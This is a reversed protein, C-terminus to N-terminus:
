LDTESEWEATMEDFLRNILYDYTERRAVKIKWIVWWLCGSIQGYMLIVSREWDKLSINRYLEQWLKCGHRYHVGNTVFWYATGASLLWSVSRCVDGQLKCHIKSVAQSGTFTQFCSVWPSNKQPMASTKGLNMFRGSSLESKRTISVTRRMLNRYVQWARRFLPIRTFLHRGWWIWPSTFHLNIM